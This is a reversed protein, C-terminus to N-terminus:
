DCDLWFCWDSSIECAMVFFLHQDKSCCCVIECCGRYDGYGCWNLDLHLGFDVMIVWLWWLWWQLGMVSLTSVGLLHLQQCDEMSTQLIELNPNILKLSESPSSFSTQSLSNLTILFFNLNSFKLYLLM